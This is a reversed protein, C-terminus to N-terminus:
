RERGTKLYDAALRELVARLEPLVSAPLTLPQGCWEPSLFPDGTEAGGFGAALVLTDPEGAPSRSLSVRLTTRGPGLAIDVTEVTRTLPASM